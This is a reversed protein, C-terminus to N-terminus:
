SCEEKKAEGQQEGCGCRESLVACAREVPDHRFGSAHRDGSGFQRELL